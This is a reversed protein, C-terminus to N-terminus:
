TAVPSYGNRIFSEFTQLALYESVSKIFQKNMGAGMSELAAPRYKGVCSDMNLLCQNEVNVDLGEEGVGSVFM